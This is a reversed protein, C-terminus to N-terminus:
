EDPLEDMRPTELPHWWPVRQPHPWWDGAYSKGMRMAVDLTYRIAGLQARTFTLRKNRPTPEADTAYRVFESAGMLTQAVLEGGPACQIVLGIEPLCAVTRAPIPERM